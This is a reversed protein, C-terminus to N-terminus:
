EYGKKANMVRISLDGIKQRSPSGQADEIEDYYSGSVGSKREGM